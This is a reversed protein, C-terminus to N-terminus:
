FLGEIEHLSRVTKANNFYRSKVEKGQLEGTKVHQEDAWVEILYIIKALSSNYYEGENRGM